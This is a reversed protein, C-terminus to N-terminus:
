VCTTRDRPWLLRLFDTDAFFHAALRHGVAAGPGLAENGALRRLIRDDLQGVLIALRAQQELDVGVSIRADFEEVVAALHDLADCLLFPWGLSIPLACTQVGTGLACITHRRRSSFFCLSCMM